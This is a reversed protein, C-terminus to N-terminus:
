KKMSWSFVNIEIKDKQPLNTTLEIVGQINATSAPHLIAKLQIEEGPLIIKKNLSVKLNEFKSKLSLLKISSHKTQNKLTLVATYESDANSIYFMLRPPTIKLREIVFTSILIKLNPNTTDNSQVEVSKTVGGILDKTNFVLSLQASDSPGIDKKNGKLLAATCGCSPKLSQIRLTDNGANKITVIHEVIEGSYRDGLDIVTRPMIRIQPQAFLMPSSIILSATIILIINNM